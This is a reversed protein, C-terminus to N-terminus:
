DKRMYKVFEEFTDCEEGYDSHNSSWENDAHKILEACINLLEASLEKRKDFLEEM